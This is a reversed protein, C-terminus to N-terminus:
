KTKLYNDILENLTNIIEKINEPDSLRHGANNILKLQANKSTLCKLTALSNQWDIDPDTTGHLMRVPCDIDIEDSLILHKRGDEILQMTFLYPEEDYSSIWEFYGQSLLLSRHEDDCKDWIFKETMDTAAAITLIGKTQKTKLAALLAIWGGMSSGCFIIPGKTLQKIIHLTDELWTSTNSESFKGSSLGHGTYDFCLASCSKEIAFKFISNAKEGNMNSKFGGTYVITLDNGQHFRYALKIKDKQLYSLKVPWTLEPTEM